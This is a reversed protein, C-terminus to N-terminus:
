WAHLSANWRSKTSYDVKGPQQTNAFQAFKLSRESVPQWRGHFYCSSGIGGDFKAINIITFYKNVPLQPNLCGLYLFISYVEILMNLPASVLHKKSKPLELGIKLPRQYESGLSAGKVVLAVPRPTEPPCFDRWGWTVPLQCFGAAAPLVSCSASGLYSM